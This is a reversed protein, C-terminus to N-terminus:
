LFPLVSKTEFLNDQFKQEENKEINFTERAFDIPKSILTIVNEVTKM